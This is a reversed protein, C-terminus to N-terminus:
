TVNVPQPFTLGLPNPQYSHTLCSFHLCNFTGQPHSYLQMIVHAPMSAETSVMVRPSSSTNGRQDLLRKYRESREMSWVKEGTGTGRSTCLGSATQGHLEPVSVSFTGPAHLGQTGPEEHLLQPTSVRHEEDAPRRHRPLATSNVPSFNIGRSDEASLTDNAALKSTRKHGLRALQHVHEVPPFALAQPAAPAEKGDGTQVTETSEGGGLIREWYDIGSESSAKAPQNINPQAAPGLASTSMSQKIDLGPSESAYHRPSDGVSPWQVHNLSGSAGSQRCGTSHSGSMTPELPLTRDCGPELDADLPSRCHRAM